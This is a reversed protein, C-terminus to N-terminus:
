CGCRNANESGSRAAEKKNRILLYGIGSLALLGVFVSLGVGLAGLGLGAVSVGLLALVFPAACALGLGGALAALVVARPTFGPKGPALQSMFDQALVIGEGHSRVTLIHVGAHSEVEHTLFACCSKDIEVLRELSGKVGPSAEFLIRAGDELKERKLVHPALEANFKAIEKRQEATSLSCAVPNPSAPSSM